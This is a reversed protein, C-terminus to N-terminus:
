SKSKKKSLLEELQSVRSDLDRCTAWLVTILRSYDISM